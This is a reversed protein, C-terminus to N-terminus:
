EQSILRSIPYLSKPIRNHLRSHELEKTPGLPPDRDLRNVLAGQLPDFDHVRRAVVADPQCLMVEVGEANAGRHVHHAQMSCRARASHADPGRDREGREIMRQPEGLFDCQEIDQRAAAHIPAGPATEIRSFEAGEAHRNFFARRPELFGDIHHQLRPAVIAERIMASIEIEFIDFDQGLRHLLRM